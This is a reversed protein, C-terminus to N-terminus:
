RGDFYFFGFQLNQNASGSSYAWLGEQAQFCRRFTEKEGLLM